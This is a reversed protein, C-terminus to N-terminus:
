YRPRKTSNDGGAGYGGGYGSQPDYGYGSADRKQGASSGYGSAQGGQAVFGSLANYGSAPQAAATGYGSQTYGSQPAVYASGQNYSSAGYGPASGTAAAAGAFTSLSSAKPQTAAAGGYGMAQQADQGSRIYGSSQGAPEASYGGYGGSSPRQIATQPAGIAGRSVRQAAEEARRRAEAEQAAKRAQERAAQEARQAQAQFAQAQAQAQRLQAQMAANQARLQVDVQAQVQRQLQAQQMQLSRTTSALAADPLVPAAAPVPGRGGFRGGGRGGRGFAPGGQAPAFGRGGGRGFSGRGPGGFGRGGRGQPRPQGYAQASVPFRQASPKQFSSPNASQRVHTHTSPDKQKAPNAFAALIKGLTPHQHGDLARFATDAEGSSKFEVFAFGKSLGTSKNTPVHCDTVSGYEEFCVRLTHAKFGPILNSVFLQRSFLGAVTRPHSWEARMQKIQDYREAGEAAAEEKATGNATGPDAKAEAGEGVADKMEVDTAADEKTPEAAAGAAAAGAAPAETAEQKGAAAAGEDKKTEASGEKAAAAEGGTSAAAFEGKDVAKVTNAPLRRQAGPQREHEIKDLAEKAKLAGSPLAYEVFGYGKSEGAKNRMIFARQVQGYEEMGKQFAEDDQWDAKVNGVYLQVQGFGAEFALAEGGLDAEKIDESASLNRVKFGPLPRWHHPIDMDEWENRGEPESSPKAAAPAEGKGVAHSQEKAKKLLEADSSHLQGAAPHKDELKVPQKIEVHSQTRAQKLLEADSSHLKEPSASPLNEEAPEETRPKEEQKGGPPKEEPKVAIQAGEDKSHLWSEIKGAAKLPSRPSKPQAAKSDAAPPQQAQTPADSSPQNDKSPSMQPLDAKVGSAPLSRKKLEARLENVTWKDVPKANEATM